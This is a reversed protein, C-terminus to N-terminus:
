CPSSSTTSAWKSIRTAWPRSRRSRASGKLEILRSLVVNLLFAAVGLFIIPAMTAMVALNAMDQTLFYNSLQRDRAYAGLSGYSNLMTDLRQIVADPNAGPSLKMVVSNFAGRMDYAAEVAKRTM